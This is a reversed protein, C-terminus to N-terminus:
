SNSGLGYEAAWSLGGVTSHKAKYECGVWGTYGINDLHNLLVPLNVEGYQPEFRGPVSSFQIHSIQDLHRSVNVALNGEMIQMHYFDYQMKVNPLALRKIWEIVVDSTQYLYGPVDQQNLPELMVTIDHEAARTAAWSVNEIFTATVEDKDLGSTVGALTHIMSANLGSAYALSEEFVTKFDDERGPIAALGVTTEDGLSPRTNILILELDAQRLRSEIEEVSWAYPSLFEIARFGVSAAAQIRDLTEHEQFMTTINAAFKPM